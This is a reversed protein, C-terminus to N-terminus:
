SRSNSAGPVAPRPIPRPPGPRAWAAVPHANALHQDATLAHCVLFANSREANLEGYTQYAIQWPALALGADMLLPEAAGFRAVLSSPDDAQNRPEIEVAQLQAMASVTNRSRHPGAM